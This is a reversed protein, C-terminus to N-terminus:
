KHYFLCLKCELISSSRSPCLTISPIFSIGNVNWYPAVEVKYRYDTSNFKIDNVNWYPAVEVSKTLSCNDTYLFNVNWYPAVEVLKM